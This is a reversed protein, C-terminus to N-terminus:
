IIFNILLYLIGNILSLILGCISIKSIM